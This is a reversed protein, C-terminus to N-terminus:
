LVGGLEGYLAGLGLRSFGVPSFRGAGPFRDTVRMCAAGLLAGLGPAWTDGTWTVLATRAAVLSVHIMMRTLAARAGAPERFHFLHRRLAEPIAFYLLLGGRGRAFNSRGVPAWGWKM